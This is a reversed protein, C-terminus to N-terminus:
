VKIKAFLIFILVSFELLWNLSFLVGFAPDGRFDFIKERHCLVDYMWVDTGGNM